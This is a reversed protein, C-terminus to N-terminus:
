RQRIICEAFEPKKKLKAQAAEAAARDAFRGYVVNLHKGDRSKIVEADVGANEKLRKVYAEAMDRNSVRYSILQITFNGKGESAPKDAEPKKEAEPAPAKAAALAAQPADEDPPTVPPLPTVTAAPAPAPTPAPTPAVPAVSATVSPAAEPLPTPETPTRTAAPSPRDRDVFSASSTREAPAKAVVTETGTKRAPPPAPVRKKTSESKAAATRSAEEEAAREEAPASAEKLASAAVAEAKEALDAVKSGEFRGAVVGMLFGALWLLLLGCIAIILQGSTFELSHRDAEILSKGRRASQM